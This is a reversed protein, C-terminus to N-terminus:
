GKATGEALVEALRTVDVPREDDPVGTAVLGGWVFAVLHDVFDARPVGPHEAWWHAAIFVAGLLAHAVPEAVSVSHDAGDDTAGSVPAAVMAAILGSIPAATEDVVSGDGANLAIFRYIEPDTEIFRVFVEIGGRVLQRATRPRDLGVAMQGIVRTGYRDLLAETLGPKGNFNDYLTAKSVNAAEAVQEMSVGAGRRRIADEAHGLLQTRREAPDRRTGRPRGPGRAPRATPAM